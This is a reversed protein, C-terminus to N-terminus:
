NIEDIFTSFFLNEGFAKKFAARSKEGFPKIPAAKEETINTSKHNGASNSDYWLSNSRIVKMWALIPIGLEELRLEYYLSRSINMNRDLSLLDLDVNVFGPMTTIEIMKRINSGAANEIEFIIKDEFNELSSIKQQYTCGGFKQRPVHLWGESSKQHYNVCSLILHAPNRISHIGTFDIDDLAVHQLGGHGDFYIDWNGEGVERSYADQTNKQEFTMADLFKLGTLKGLRHLVRIWFVTGTKHHSLVLLKLAM